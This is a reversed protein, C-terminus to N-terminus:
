AGNAIGRFGSAFLDFEIKGAAFSFEVVVNNLLNGIGKDVQDSIGNGVSDFQGFAATVGSFGFDATDSETGIVASIM